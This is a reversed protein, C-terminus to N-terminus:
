LPKLYSVPFHHDGTRASRELRVDATRSTGKYNIKVIQGRCGDYEAYDPDYGDAPIVVEVYQGKDITTALVDDKREQDSAM